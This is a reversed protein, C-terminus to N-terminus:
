AMGRLASTHGLFRTRYLRPKGLKDLQRRIADFPTRVDGAGARVEDLGDIFLTKGHWEPHSQVDFTLLDRATVFCAGDRSVGCEADFATSKGAGPDGLLM